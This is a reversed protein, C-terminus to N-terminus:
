KGRLKRMTEAKKTKRYKEYCEKCLDKELRSKSDKEFEKNCESCKVKKSKVKSYLAKTQKLKINKSCKLCYKRSTVKKYPANCEKCYEYDNNGQYIFLNYILNDFNSIELAIEGEDVIFPINNEVDKDGTRCKLCNENELNYLVDYYDWTKLNLKSIKMIDSKYFSFWKLNLFKNYVLLSFLVRQEKENKLELIKDIESKYIIVKKGTILEKNKFGNIISSLLEDIQYQEFYQLDRYNFKIIIDKIYEETFNKSILYKVVCEIEKTQWGKTNFTGNNLLEEAYLVEDFIIINIM